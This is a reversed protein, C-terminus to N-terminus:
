RAVSMRSRKISRRLIKKWARYQKTTESLKKTEDDSFITEYSDFFHTTLFHKPQRQTPQNMCALTLIMRASLTRQSPTNSRARWVPPLSSGMTMCNRSIALLTPRSIDGTVMKGIETIGIPGHRSIAYLIQSQPRTQSLRIM